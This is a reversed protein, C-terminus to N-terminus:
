FIVLMPTIKTPKLGKDKLLVRNNFFFFSFQCCFLGSKRNKTVKKWWGEYEAGQPFTFKGHRYDFGLNGELQQQLFFFSKTIFTDKLVIVVDLVEWSVSYIGEENESSHDEEQM